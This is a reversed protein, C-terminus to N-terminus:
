AELKDPINKGSQQNRRIKGRKKGAQVKPHQTNADSHEEQGAEKREQRRRRMVLDCWWRNRLSASFPLNRREHDPRGRSM